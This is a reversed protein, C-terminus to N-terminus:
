WVRMCALGGLPNIAAVVSVDMAMSQMIRPVAYVFVLSLWSSCTIWPDFGLYKARIDLAPESPLILTAAPLPPYLLKNKARDYEHARHFM